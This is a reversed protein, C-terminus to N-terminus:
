VVEIRVRFKIKINGSVGKLHAKTAKSYEENLNDDTIIISCCSFEFVEEIETICGEMLVLTGLEYNM